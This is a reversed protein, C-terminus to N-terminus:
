KGRTKKPICTNNRTIQYFFPYKKSCLQPNQGKKKTRIVIFLTFTALPILIIVGQQTKKEHSFNNETFYNM